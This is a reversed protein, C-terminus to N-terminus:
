PAGTRSRSYCVAASRCRTRRKTITSRYPQPPLLGGGFPISYPTKNHHEPVAAPTVFRRRVT